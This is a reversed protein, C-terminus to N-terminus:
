IEKMKDKVVKYPSMPSYKIGVQGPQFSGRAESYGGPCSNEGSRTMEPRSDYAETTMGIAIAAPKFDVRADIESREGVMHRLETLARAGREKNLDAEALDPIYASIPEISTIATIRANADTALHLALHLAQVQGEGHDPAIAVLINSYM